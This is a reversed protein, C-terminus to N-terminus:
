KKRRKNKYALHEIDPSYLINQTKNYFTSGSQLLSNGSNFVGNHRANGDERFWHIPQTLYAETVTGYKGEMYVVNLDPIQTIENSLQLPLDLTSTKNRKSKSVLITRQHTKIADEANFQRPQWIKPNPKSLIALKADEIQKLMDGHNDHFRIKFLEAKLADRVYREKPEDIKRSQSTEHHEEDVEIFTNIWPYYLDFYYISNTKDDIVPHQFVPEIDQLRHDMCFSSLVITEKIKFSGNGLKQTIFNLKLLETSTKKKEIKHKEM